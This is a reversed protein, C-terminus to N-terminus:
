DEEEQIESSQRELLRPDEKKGKKEMRKGTPRGM